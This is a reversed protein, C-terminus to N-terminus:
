NCEYLREDGSLDKNNDSLYDDSMYREYEEPGTVQVCPVKPVKGSVSLATDM